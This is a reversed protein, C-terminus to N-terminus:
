NNEGSDHNRVNTRKCTTATKGRKRVIEHDSIEGLLSQMVPKEPHAMRKECMGVCRQMLAEPRLDATANANAYLCDVFGPKCLVLACVQTFHRRCECGGTKFPDVFQWYSNIVRDHVVFYDFM